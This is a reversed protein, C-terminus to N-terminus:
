KRGIINHVKDYIDHEERGEFLHAPQQRLFHASASKMPPVKAAISEKFYERIIDTEEETVVGNQLDLHHCPRHSSLRPSM